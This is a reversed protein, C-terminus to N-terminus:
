GASSRAQFRHIRGTEARHNLYIMAKDRVPWSRTTTLRPHLLTRASHDYRFTPMFETNLASHKTFSLATDVRGQRFLNRLKVREGGAFHDGGARQGCRQRDVQVESNPPRGIM